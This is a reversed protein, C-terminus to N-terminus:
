FNSSMQIIQHAPGPAQYLTRYAFDFLQSIQRYNNRKNKDVFNLIQEVTFIIEWRQYKLWTTM